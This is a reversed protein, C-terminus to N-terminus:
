PWLRLIEMWVGLISMLVWNFPHWSVCWQCTMTMTENLEKFNNELQQKWLGLRYPGKYNPFLDCLKWDPDHWSWRWLFGMKWSTKMRRIPRRRDRNWQHIDYRDSVWPYSVPSQRHFIVEKEPSAESAYCKSLSLKSSLWPKFRFNSIANFHQSFVCWPHSMGIGSPFQTAVLRCFGHSMATQMSGQSSLTPQLDATDVQGQSNAPKFRCM